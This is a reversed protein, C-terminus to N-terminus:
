VSKHKYCDDWKNEGIYIYNNAILLDKIQTRRPEIYNHEVDILGFKYKNFNFTKLIEFESGETDLSLYDIFHPANYKDLLDTLSITKLQIISKNSDITEKYCEIHKSIGSFLDYNHAVDFDLVMGSESYVAYDCCNSNIRNSCLLNFKEPIPEVCIGTWDFYKELAYTNSLEIGDSAGIEVFFGRKKNNYLELVKLDQGLQSKYKFKEKHWVSGNEFEVYMNTLKGKGLINFIIENNEKNFSGLDENWYSSTVSISNDTVFRINIPREYDDNYYYTQLISSM